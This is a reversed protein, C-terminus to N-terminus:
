GYIEKTLRSIDLPVSLDEGNLAMCQGLLTDDYFDLVTQRLASQEEPVDFPYKKMWECTHKDPICWLFEIADDKRHYRYITQDYNPTPCVPAHFILNRVVIKFVREVKAAVVIYFDGPYTKFAESIVDEVRKEYQKLAEERANIIEGIPDAILEPEKTLIDYVIKGTTKSDKVTKSITKSDKAM